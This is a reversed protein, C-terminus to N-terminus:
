TPVHQKLFDLVRNFVGCSIPDFAHEGGPITILEHEVGARALKEAMM